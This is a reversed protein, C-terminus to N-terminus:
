LWTLESRLKLRTLLLSLLLLRLLQLALLFLLVLLLQQHLLLQLLNPSVIIIDIETRCKTSVYRRGLALTFVQKTQSLVLIAYRAKPMRFIRQKLFPLDCYRWEEFCVGM